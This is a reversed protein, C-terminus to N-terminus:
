PRDNRTHTFVKPRVPPMPMPFDVAASKSRRRPKGTTSESTMARSITSGPWGASASIRCSNPRSIRPSSPRQTAVFQGPANEGVGAGTAFQFFDKMRADAGDPPALQLGPAGFAKRGGNGQNRQEELGIRRTMAFRGDARRTGRLCLALAQALAAPVIFLDVLADGRLQWNFLLHQERIVNNPGFARQVRVFRLQSADNWSGVEGNTCGAVKQQM